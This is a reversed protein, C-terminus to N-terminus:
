VLRDLFTRTIQWCENPATLLLAHPGYVDHAEFNELHHYFPRVAGPPVLLDRRARIACCPLTIKELLPTDDLTRLEELRAALVENPVQSGARQLLALREPSSKPQLFVRKLLAEQRSWELIREVPLLRTLQLLFPQPAKAFTTCFISAVYRRRNRVLLRVAIPGSFSIPFLAIPRDTPLRQEVYDVLEDISMPHNSPYTIQLFDYERDAVRILPDSLIDLGDIGPLIAILPRETM